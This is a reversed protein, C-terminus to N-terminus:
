PWTPSCRVPFISQAVLASCPAAAILARHICWTVLAPSLTPPILSRKGLIACVFRHM